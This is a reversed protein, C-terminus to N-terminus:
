YDDRALSDLLKETEIYRRLGDESQSVHFYPNVTERRLKKKVKSDEVVKKPHGGMPFELQFSKTVGTQLVVSQNKDRYNVFDAYSISKWVLKAWDYCYYNDQFESLLVWPLYGSFGSYVIPDGSNTTITVSFLPKNNKSAM